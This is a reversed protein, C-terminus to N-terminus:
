VRFGLLHIPAQNEPQKATRQRSSISPKSSSLTQYLPSLRQLTQRRDAAVTPHVFVIGGIGPDTPDDGGAEEEGEIVWSVGLRINIEKCFFEKFYLCQWDPHLLYM